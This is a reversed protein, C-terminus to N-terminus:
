VSLPDIRVREGDVLIPFHDSVLRPLTYQAVGKFHNEWDEIVLFSDLRSMSQGNLGGSWTFLGGQRPLDRLDLDDFVESFRRMTSTVGGRKGREYPFRTM